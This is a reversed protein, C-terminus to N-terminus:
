ALNIYFCLREFIRLCKYVGKYLSFCLIISRVSWSSLFRFFRKWKLRDSKVVCMFLWDVEIWRYFQLGGFPSDMAYCSRYACCCGSVLFAVLWPGCEVHCKSSRLISGSKPPPVYARKRCLYCNCWNLKPKTSILIRLLFTRSRRAHQVYVQVYPSNVINCNWINFSDSRKHLREHSKLTENIFRLTITHHEFSSFNKQRYPFHSNYLNEYHYGEKIFRFYILIKRYVKWTVM